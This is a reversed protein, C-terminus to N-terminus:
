QKRWETDAVGAQANLARAFVFLWDSLRNLWALFDPSVEKSAALHIVSREARRCITRCVHAQAAETTGGPLIFARLPALSGEMLDISKELKETEMPLDAMRFRDDGPESALEAGADFLRSQLHHLDAAWDSRNRVMTALVGLAANLEDLDGLATILSSSKSVRGGGLTGTTGEDGTRTYIKM